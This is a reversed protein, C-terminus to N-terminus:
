HVGKLAEAVGSYGEQTHPRKTWKGLSHARGKIPGIGLYSLHTLSCVCILPFIYVDYLATEPIQVTSTPAM